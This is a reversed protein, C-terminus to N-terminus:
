REAFQELAAAWEDIHTDDYPGQDSKFTVIGVADLVYLREPSGSYDENIRDDSWDLAIQSTIGCTKRWDAAIKARDIMTVPQAYLINEAVNLPTNWGNTPHAETVYVFLFQIADCHTAIL